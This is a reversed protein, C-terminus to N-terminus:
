VSAFPTSYNSKRKKETKAQWDDKKAEAVSLRETLNNKDADLKKRENEFKNSEEECKKIWYKKDAEATSVKGTLDNKDAEAADLRRHLYQIDNGLSSVHKKSRFFEEQTKKLDREFVIKAKVEDSLRGKLDENDKEKKILNEDKMKLAKEREELAKAMLHNHQELGKINKRHNDDLAVVAKNLDEIDSKFTDFKLFINNKILYDKGEIIKMNERIKEADVALTLWGMNDDINKNLKRYDIDIKEVESKKLRIEELKRYINNFKVNVHNPTDTEPKEAAEGRQSTCCLAVFLILIYLM